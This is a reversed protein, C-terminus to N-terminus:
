THEAVRMKASRSRPNAEVEPQTPRIVKKRVLRLTPAQTPMRAVLVPASSTGKAQRRMFEKVVRDELSHYSIVVLRGGTKLLAVTGKLGNRLNDLEENVEMRIAQFTRTAPHIGSRRKGAARTVIDALELSDRVPRRAVIARAIAEAKPEEGYEILIRILDPTSYGNVVADADLEQDPDFRMDLREARLFSFGRREGELHLSSLGLDFLVGDVKPFGFIRALHGIQAYNGRVLTALHWFPQLRKRAAELAQPDLDIGLLHGQPLSAELIAQAHGGEGLTADIYSGDQTVGLERVAENLLVPTHYFRGGTPGNM